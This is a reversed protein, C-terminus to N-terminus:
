TTRTWDTGGPRDELTVGLETLGNRIGDALAFNKSKRAEARLDIFLKMLGSVLADDTGGISAKAAAARFLGLTGALERLIAAGRRLSQVQQSKAKADTELKEQEVYRNLATVAEFLCGIAGASNFDDDMRELFRERHGQMEGLLPDDYSPTGSRGAPEKDSPISNRGVAADGEARSAAAPVSYFSEGTVREYRKFFRYFTELRDAQKKIEDESFLIPSRYHTSVLLMRISEASHRQLLERFPGSGKSKSIKAAQQSDIDGAIAVSPTMPAAGASADSREAGAVGSREAGAGAVSAERTQRGGVKGVEDAAQM